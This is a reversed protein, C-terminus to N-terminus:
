EGGANRLAVPEVTIETYPEERRQLARWRVTLSPITDVSDRPWLIGTLADLVGKALNDLDSNRRAGAFEITVAFPPKEYWDQPAVVGWGVALKYNEYRESFYAGHKTVRPRPAPVPVGPVRFSISM